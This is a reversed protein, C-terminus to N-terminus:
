LESFPNGGITRRHWAGRPVCNSLQVARRVYAIYKAASNIILDAALIAFNWTMFEVIPRLGNM